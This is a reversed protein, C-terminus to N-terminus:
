PCSPNLANDERPVRRIEADIGCQPVGQAAIEMDNDDAIGVGCVFTGDQFCKGDPIVEVPSPGIADALGRDSDDVRM